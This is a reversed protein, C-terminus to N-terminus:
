SAWVAVSCEPASSCRATSRRRCGSAVSRSLQVWPDSWNKNAARLRSANM